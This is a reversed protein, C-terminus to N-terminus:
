STGNESDPHTPDGAPGAQDSEATGTAPPTAPEATADKAKAVKPGGRSVAVMAPRLSREGIVYGSQLVQLVTGSPVTADEQEMVAQHLHPDFPEGTPFIRKVGHRELANLFERETMMVGDLLGKLMPNDEVADEPVASIAREFNDAVSVTDKAFKSIAYKATEERERELRKHLNQLEANARLLRDTLDAIQANLTEIEIAAETAAQQEDNPSTDAELPAGAEPPLPPPTKPTGAPPPADGAPSVPDAHPEQKNSNGNPGAAAHEQPPRNAPGNNNDNM